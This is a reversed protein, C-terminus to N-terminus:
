NLHDYFGDNFTLENNLKPGGQFPNGAPGAGGQYQLWGGRQGQQQGPMARNPNQPCQRWWHDAAGCGNCGGRGGGRGKAGRWGRGGYGRRHGGGRGRGRGRQQLQRQIADVEKALSALDPDPSPVPKKQTEEGAPTTKSVTSTFEEEPNAATVETVKKFVLDKKSKGAELEASRAAELLQLPTTPQRESTSSFIAQRYSSFLGGKFHTYTLKQFMNQYAKLHAGTKEQDAMFKSVSFRVKEYFQDVTDSATQKLDELAHAATAANYRYGFKDLLMDRLNASGQDWDQTGPLGEMEQNDVFLRAEGTLRNRATQATQRSTWNFQDKARDVTRIWADGDVGPSGDFVPISSIQSGQVASDMTPLAAADTEVLDKLKRVLEAKEALLGSLDKEADNLKANTDVLKQTDNEFQQQIAVKASADLGKELAKESLESLSINLGLAAKQADTIIKQGAQIRDLVRNLQTTLETAAM